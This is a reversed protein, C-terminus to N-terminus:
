ILDKKQMETLAFLGWSAGDEIEHYKWIGSSLRNDLLWSYAKKFTYDPVFEPYQLLGLISISTCFVDSDVPHEIWPAFGGDKRQSTALWECTQKIIERNQPLYENKNFAMLTYGAKYVVSSIESDWLSELHKLAMNKEIDPFLYLLIGSVPIRSMDRESRGWLGHKNKQKILYNKGSNVKDQYNKKSILTLFFTNWMTDVVSVWGGDNEQNNVVREIIKDPISNPSLGSLILLSATKTIRKIEIGKKNMELLMNSLSRITLLLSDM